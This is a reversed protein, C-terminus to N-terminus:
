FFAALVMNTRFVRAYLTSLISVQNSFKLTLIFCLDFSNIQITCDLRKTTYYVCFVFVHVSVCVVCVCECVCVSVYVYM